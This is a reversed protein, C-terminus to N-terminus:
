RPPNEKYYTEIAKIQKDGIFFKFAFSGALAMITGHIVAMSFGQLPPMRGYSSLVGSPVRRVPGPGYLYPNRNIIREGTMTSFLNRCHFFLVHTYALQRLPILVFVLLIVTTEIEVGELKSEITQALFLM